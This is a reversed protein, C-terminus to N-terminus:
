APQPPIKLDGFWGAVAPGIEDGLSLTDPEHDLAFPIRLRDPVTGNLLHMRRTDQIGARMRTDYGWAAKCSLGPGLRYPQTNAQDMVRRQGFERVFYRHFRGYISSALM